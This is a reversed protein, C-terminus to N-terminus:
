GFSLFDVVVHATILWCHERLYSVFHPAFEKHRQFQNDYILKYLNPGNISGHLTGRLDEPFGDFVEPLNVLVEDVEELVEPVGESVM